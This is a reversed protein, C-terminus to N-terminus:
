ENRWRGQRKIEELRRAAADQEDTRAGVVLCCYVAVVIACVSAIIVAICLTTM